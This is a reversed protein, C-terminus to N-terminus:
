AAPELISYDNKDEGILAITEGRLADLGTSLVVPYENLPVTFKNKQEQVFAKLDKLSRRVCQDAGRGWFLKLLAEAHDFDDGRPMPESRRAMIDKVYKGDAACRWIQIEGPQTAKVLTDPIKMTAESGIQYLKFIVGVVSGVALNTGFPWGRVKIPPDHREIIARIDRVMQASMDGSPIIGVNGLNWRQLKEWAYIIRAAYDAADKGSDIRINKLAKRRAETSTAAMALHRLGSELGFADPLCTTGKPFADLWKEFGIQEFHKPLGTRPDIQQNELRAYKIFRQLWHHGMTGTAEIDFEYAADLNSTDDFGCILAVWAIQLAREYSDARRYSYDSLRVNNGAAERMEMARHAITMNLDFAHQFKLEQTQVLGYPGNINAFPENAFIITGEEPLYIQGPFTANKELIDVSLDLGARDERLVRAHPPDIQYDVMMRYLDYNGLLVTYPARRQSAAFVCPEIVLNQDEINMAALKAAAELMTMTYRDKLHHFDGLEV